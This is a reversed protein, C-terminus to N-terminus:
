IKRINGWYSSAYTVATNQFLAESKKCYVISKNWQFALKSYTIKPEEPINRVTSQYDTATTEPCGVPEM